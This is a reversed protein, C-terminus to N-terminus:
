WINDSIIGYQSEIWKNICEKQFFETFPKHIFKVQQIFALVMCTHKMGEDFGMTFQQM